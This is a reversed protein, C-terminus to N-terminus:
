SGSSSKDLFITIAATVTINALALPIFCKWGLSMLQDYRFRPITWRVWIYFFMMFTLKLFFALASLAVQGGTVATDASIALGPFTWGGLFLTVMLASMTMLAVYEGLFFLAFKMSSYETHYGGVLESEAEPFDFPLRNTEAFAAILFIGAALPQRFVNWSLFSTIAGPEAQSPFFHIVFDRLFGNETQIWVMDQLHVSSAMMVVPLISLGLAIEYSIMQASSRLGGLLSYKNNSAWGGFALGYVGLSGVTLLYVIGVNLDAIQLGCGVPIVVFSLMAPAYVLFPAATYIFRDTGDPRVDEKLMLKVADALPQLLGAPGVRNPGIRNQMWASLKREFYILAPVIQLLAGFVVVARLISELYPYSTLLPFAHM